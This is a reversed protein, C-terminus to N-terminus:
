YAYLRCQMYPFINGEIGTLVTGETNLSQQQESEHMFNIVKLQQNRVISHDQLHLHQRLESETEQHQLM